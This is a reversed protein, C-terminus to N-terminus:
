SANHVSAHFSPIVVSLLLASLWKRFILNDSSDTELFEASFLYSYLSFVTLILFQGGLKCLIFTFKKSPLRWPFGNENVVERDVCQLM